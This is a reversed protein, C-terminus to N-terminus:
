IGKKGYNKYNDYNPNNCRGNISKLLRRMPYRKCYNEYQEKIKEKNTDRSARERELMKEKNKIRYEKLYGKRRAM